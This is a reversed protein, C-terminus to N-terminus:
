TATTAVHIRACTQVAIQVTTPASTAAVSAVAVQQPVTAVANAVAPARLQM